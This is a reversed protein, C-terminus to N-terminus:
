RTQSRKETIKKGMASPTIKIKANAFTKALEKGEFFRDLFIALAAVESHPQTTVSINYDAMAYIEGPVKQSGVIVLPNKNKSNPNSKRIEGIKDQIREGYMTLHIVKGKGNKKWGVIVKRWNEEYTAVFNGGWNKTLKNVGAVIESADEGTVIVKKAGFARAVLCVHSTVREDRIRRHGWRLVTVM